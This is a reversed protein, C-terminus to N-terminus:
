RYAALLISVELFTPHPLPRLPVGVGVLGCKRITGSGPGCVYLDDYRAKAAIAFLV